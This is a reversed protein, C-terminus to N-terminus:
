RFRWLQEDAVGELFIAVVLVLAVGAEVYWFPAFVVLIVLGLPRLVVFVLLMLILYLSVLFAVWYLM